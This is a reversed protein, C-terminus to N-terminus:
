PVLEWHLGESSAAYSVDSSVRFGCVAPLLKHLYFSRPVDSCTYCFFLHFATGGDVLRDIPSECCGTLLHSLWKWVSSESCLGKCHSLLHVTQRRFGLLQNGDGFHFPWIITGRPSPRLKPAAVWWISVFLSSRCRKMPYTTRHGQRGSCSTWSSM